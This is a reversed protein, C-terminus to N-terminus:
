TEMKEYLAGEIIVNAYWHDQVHVLGMDIM